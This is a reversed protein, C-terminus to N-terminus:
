NNPYVLMIYLSSRSIGLKGQFPYVMELWPTTNKASHGLNPGQKGFDVMGLVKSKSTVEVEMIEDVAMKGRLELPGRDALHLGDEAHM